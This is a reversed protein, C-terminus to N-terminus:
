AGAHQAEIIRKLARLNTKMGRSFLREALGGLHAAPGTLGEASIQGDLTLRTGGSIAELRYRYQFPTPGEISTFTIEEEPQFSTVEVENIAHGDPLSRFMQFRAGQGASGATTATVREVAEYWRPMNRFDAVFAFVDSPSRQIDISIRFSM